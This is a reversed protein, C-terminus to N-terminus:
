AAALERVPDAGPADGSYERRRLARYLSAIEDPGLETPAARYPHARFFSIRDITPRASRCSLKPQLSHDLISRPHPLRRVAALAEEGLGRARGRDRPLAHVHVGSEWRGLRALRHLHGRLRFFDM